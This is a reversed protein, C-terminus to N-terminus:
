AIMSHYRSICVCLAITLSFIFTGVAHSPRRTSSRSDSLCYNCRRSRLDLAPQAHPRELLPHPDDPSRRLIQRTEHRPNRSTAKQRVSSLLRRRHLVISSYRSARRVNKAALVLKVCSPVCFIRRPLILIRREGSQLRRAYEGRLLYISKRGSHTALSFPAFRAKLM